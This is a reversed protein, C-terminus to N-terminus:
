KYRDAVQRTRRNGKSSSKGTDGVPVGYNGGDSDMPANRASSTGTGQIVSSGNTMGQSYSGGKSPM